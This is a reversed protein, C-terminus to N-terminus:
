LILFFLRLRFIRLQLLNFVIKEEAGNDDAEASFFFYYLNENRVDDKKFKKTQCNEHM